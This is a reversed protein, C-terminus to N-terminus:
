RFDKKSYSGDPIALDESTWQYVVTDGPCISDQSIFAPVVVGLSKQFHVSPPVSILPMPDGIVEFEMDQYSSMGLFNMCTLRINYFGPDSALTEVFSPNFVM